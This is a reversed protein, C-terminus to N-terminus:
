VENKTDYKTLYYILKCKNYNTFFRLIIGSSITKINLIFLKNLLVVANIDRILMMQLRM